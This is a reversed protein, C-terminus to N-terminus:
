KITWYLKQKILRDLPRNGLIPCESTNEVVEATGSKRPKKPTKAKSKSVGNTKSRSTKRTSKPSPTKKAKKRPKEIEEESVDDDDEEVEDAENEEGHESVDKDVYVEAILGTDSKSANKRMRGSRRSQPPVNEDNEEVATDSIVRKSGRPPM